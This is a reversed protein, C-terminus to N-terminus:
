GLGSRRRLWWEGGLCLVLPLLWYPSRMPQTTVVERRSALRDGIEAALGDGTSSVAFIAGHAAALAALRGDDPALRRFDDRFTVPTAAREGDLVAMVSCEAASDVRFRGTFTGPRPGPWLRLFRQTGGCTVTGSVSLEAPVDATVLRGSAATLTQVEVEVQVEEGPRAAVPDTEIRLRPGAVVSADWALATWFDNFGDDAQRYRWADLAGSVLVRGRGVARAAVVPQEDLSALASVGPGSEFAVWETARLLGLQQPKTERREAVIRPLLRLSAGTPRRDPLVILSGGRRSVFRELLDVEAGTLRDPATVVAVGIEELTAANLEGSSGRRLTVPPALRTRGRVDFRADDELARRVFTGLWTAEPEYFLVPAVQADVVVGINAVDGDASVQLVRAGAAAPVWPVDVRLRDGPTVSGVLTEGDMIDIRTVPRRTEIRLTAAADRHVRAPADISTLHLETPPEGSDARVVAVVRAGATVHPPVDGPSVIVCAGTSPCAAAVSGPEHTWTTTRAATLRDRLRTAHALADASTAVITVQEARMVERTFAPDIVAAAAIAVAFGRLVLRGTM